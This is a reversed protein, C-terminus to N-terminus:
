RVSSVEKPSGWSTLSEWSSVPFCVLDWLNTTFQGGKGGGGVGRSKSQEM